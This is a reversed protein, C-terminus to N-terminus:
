GAAVKKELYVAEKKWNSTITQCNRNIYYKFFFFRNVELSHFVRGEM